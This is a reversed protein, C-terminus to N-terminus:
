VRLVRVKRLLSVVEDRGTEARGASLYLPQGTVLIQRGCEARGLFAPPQTGAGRTVSRRPCRNAFAIMDDVDHQGARATYPNELSTGSIAVETFFQWRRCRRESCCRLIVRIRSSWGFDNNLM